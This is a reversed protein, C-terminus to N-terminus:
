LEIPYEDMSEPPLPEPWLLPQELHQILKNLIRKRKNAQSYYISALKKAANRYKLELLYDGDRQAIDAVDRLRQIDDLTIKM